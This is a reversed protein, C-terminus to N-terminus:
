RYQRMAEVYTQDNLAFTRYYAYHRTADMAHRMGPIWLALKKLRDDSFYVSANGDKDKGKVQAASQMVLRVDSRQYWSAVLKIIGVYEASIYEIKERQQDDKRFEFRECVIHLRKAVRGEITNCLFKYLEGHHAHPGIQGRLMEATGFKAPDYYCWGTTGGPDFSLIAPLEPKVITM